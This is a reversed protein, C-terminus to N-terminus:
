LPKSLDLILYSDTEEVIKFRKKFNEYDPDARNTSVFWDAGKQILDDISTEVVPWGWRGTQYLFATNGNYPAVVLDGENSIRRIAAGAKIIAPDNIKYYDKIEYFGILFMMGVSFFLLAKSILNNFSINNWLQWVGFSLFVSIIPIFYVQYYDHRVNATAIISAYLLVGFLWFLNYKFLKQLKRSPKVVLGVAFPVLGWFGLILKGVREAFIWRWFAPRFRIGDGNFAWKYHAIGVLLGKQNIWIRWLFMPILAIDLAILLHTNKFINLKYKYIAFVAIPLGYFAVFPKTLLGLAFCIASIYVLWPKESQLYEWFLWIGLVGFGAAMADPLVVRTYFINYPIFLYFGASLIGLWKNKTARKVFLYLNTAIFIAFIINTLRGATELNINEPLLKYIGIHMLNYIPFEVFRFGQPNEYGTQISSIDHYRPYLLNIGGKLYNKSVSATDAQRWSHWDALPTSIKYLRVVFGLILIVSLVFYEFHQSQAIRNVKSVLKKIKNLQKKIIKM